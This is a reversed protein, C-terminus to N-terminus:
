FQESNNGLVDIDYGNGETPFRSLISLQRPYSRDRQRQRVLLVRVKKHISM